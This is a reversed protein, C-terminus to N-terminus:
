SRRHSAPRQPLRACHRNSNNLSFADDSYFNNTGGSYFFPPVSSKCIYTILQLTVTEASVGILLKFESIATRLWLFIVILSLVIAGMPDIWWRVKAGLVSTLLGFGNIILDNRHDEWLIRIQSYINRLAWCYLFLALKTGFAVCVAITSNIFLPKTLEKSGGVLEQIAQVIIILSVACMLFCFFINGATEIRAKGSPYRRPDVRTTARNTLMLTANSLPDFLADAMTTFLSLSKSTIAAFLQLGALMLNAAFSGMVAIKYRLHTDGELQKAERRHDDVPKLFQEIVENQSEYFDQLKKTQWKDKGTTYLPLCKDRKGRAGAGTSGDVRKRSTNAKMLEIELPSKIKSSLEFPDNQADYTPSPQAEVDDGDGSATAPHRQAFHEQEEDAPVSAEYSTSHAGKRKSQSGIKHGHGHGLDPTTPTEPRIAPSQDRSTHPHQHTHFPHPRMSIAHRLDAESM